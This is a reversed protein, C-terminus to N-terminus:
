RADDVVKPYVEGNLGFAIFGLVADGLAVYVLKESLVRVVPECIAEGRM